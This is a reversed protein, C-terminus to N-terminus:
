SEAVPASPAVGTNVIGLVTPKVDKKPISWIASCGFPILNYTECGPANFTYSAVVPARRVEIVSGFMTPGVPTHKGVGFM